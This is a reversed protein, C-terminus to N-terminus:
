WTAPRGRREGTRDAGRRGMPGVRAPEQALRERIKARQEATLVQAIQQEVAVQQAVRAAHAQVLQQQLDAIKQTDPADALIEAQLQRQLGMEAPPGQRGQRASEQITKIQEKQQDTLDAGRLLAMPGGRGFGPGGMGRQFGAGGPAGGPGQAGAIAYAALGLVGAMVVSLTRRKM